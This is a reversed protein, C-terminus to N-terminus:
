SIAVPVSGKRPPLEASIKLAIRSVGGTGMGPEIGVRRKFEIADGTGPFLDRGGSDSRASRRVSEVRRLRSKSEPRETLATDEALAEEMAGAAGAALGLLYRNAAAARSSDRSAASDGCGVKEAAFGVGAFNLEM